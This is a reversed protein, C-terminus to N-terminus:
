FLLTPRIDFIKAESDLSFSFGFMQLQVQYYYDHAKNM